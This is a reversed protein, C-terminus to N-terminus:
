IWGGLGLAAAALGAAALPWTRAAIIDWRGSRALGAQLLVQGLLSFAIIAVVVPNGALIFFTLVGLQSLDSWFLPQAAGPGVPTAWGAYALGWLLSVLLSAGTFAGGATHGLWWPWAMGGLFSLLDMAAPRHRVLRRLFLLAVGILGVLFCDHGRLGALVLLAAGMVVVEMAWRQRIAAFRRVRRWLRALFASFSASLSGEVSYPLNVRSSAPVYDEYPLPTAAQGMLVWLRGWIATTVLVGLFLWGLQPWPWLPGGSALFGALWGLAPGLGAGRIAPLLQLDIWRGPLGESASM